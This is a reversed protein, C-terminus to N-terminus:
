QDIFNSQIQQHTQLMQQVSLQPYNCSYKDQSSDCTWFCATRNLTSQPNTGALWIGLAADEGQFKTYLTDAIKSLFNVAGHSLVYGAGCPFPPYTVSHYSGERWKGSLQVPWGQRFASWWWIQDPLERNKTSQSHLEKMVEPINIYTDDDTKLLYSFYINQDAWKYFNLMKKPLLRYVDVVDLYLIDHSRSSEEYLKQNIFEIQKAWQNKRQSKQRLFTTLNDSDALEFGVVVASLSNQFNRVIQGQSSWVLHYALVNGSANWNFGCNSQWDRSHANTELTIRGEFGKPLRYREVPKWLISSFNSTKDPSFTASTLKLGTAAEILNVRVTQKSFENLIGLRQIVIDHEVTFSYSPYIPVDMNEGYCTVNGSQLLVGNGAPFFVASEKCSFEDIRDELPVPCMHKGILFYYLADSGINQIWTKRAAERLEFHDPASLIGIVLLKSQNPSAGRYFIFLVVGLLVFFTHKVSSIMREM